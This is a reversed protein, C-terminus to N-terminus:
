RVVDFRLPDDPVSVRNRCGLRKPLEARTDRLSAGRMIERNM